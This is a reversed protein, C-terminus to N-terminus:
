NQMLIYVCRKKSEVMKIKIGPLLRFDTVKIGHHIETEDMNVCMKNTKTPEDHCDGSNVPPPSALPLLFDQLQPIWVPQVRRGILVPWRHPGWVLSLRLAQWTINQRLIFYILHSTRQCYWADTRSANKAYIRESYIRVPSYTIEIFILKRSM